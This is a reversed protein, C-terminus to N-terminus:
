GASSMARSFRDAGLALDRTKLNLEDLTRAQDDADQAM